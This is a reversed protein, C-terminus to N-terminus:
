RPQNQSNAKMVEAKAVDWLSPDGAKVKRWYWWEIGWTDITRMGTAEAYAFRKELRDANMSKDQEALDRPDTSSMSFGTQPLWPEAQLEHIVMSKGSVIEEAGALTAYFWPPLPYEFYRKTFTADWVRKYVSVGYRDAKPENLPIGIWNNSRTLIIPHNQDRQKVFNFEDVLRSRSFDPCIGFIDMFFENELQYSELAPSSKYREIVNGMFTKLEPAWETMPQRAAWWPMHCEPWRPQRLGITLSVKAGAREAMKFQWDLQTFDYVGQKAEIENWYSVLRLHRIGLDNLIADLTEQPNLGYTEAYSPIFTAGIRLPEKAHKHIYWEAISYAGATYVIVLAGLLAM